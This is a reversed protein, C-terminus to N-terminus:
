KGARNLNERTPGAYGFEHISDGDTYLHQAKVTAHIVPQDKAPDTSHRGEQQAYEKSPTVWDGTNITRVGHPVTRYVTVRADPKNRTKNIVSLSRNDMQPEHTRYYESHQHIDPFAEEAHHLPIGETPAQHMIRYGFQDPNLNDSGTSM